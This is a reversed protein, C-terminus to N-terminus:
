HLDTTFDKKKRALVWTSAPWTSSNKTAVWHAPHWRCDPIPDYVLGMAIFIWMYPNGWGDAEVVDGQKEVLLRLAAPTFRWYDSPGDHIPNIFCTTHLLLGGPKLVRFTEDMARQPDGEIHELVQDSVVADFEGDKFPLNLINADPYSADTIQEKTFGLILGLKESHSISLVKLQPERPASYAALKKYMSYRRIDAGTSMGAISIKYVGRVIQRFISKV